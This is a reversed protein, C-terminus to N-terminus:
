RHCLSGPQCTQSRLSPTPKKQTHIPLPKVNPKSLLTRSWRSSLSTAHMVPVPRSPDRQRAVQTQSSSRRRLRNAENQIVIPDLSVRGSCDACVCRGCLRCHHRRRRWGFLKSCRMCENTKGDPIWIPPVWHEVKRRVEVKVQGKDKKGAKVKKPSVPTLVKHHDNGEGNLAAVREDSPHFPLAQLSKRVHNTSASSTLTSNPNTVNLTM